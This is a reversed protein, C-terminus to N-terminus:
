WQPNAVLWGGVQKKKKIVAMKIVDYTTKANEYGRLIYYSCVPCYSHVFSRVFSHIELLVVTVIPFWDFKLTGGFALPHISM